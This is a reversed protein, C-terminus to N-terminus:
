LAGEAKRKLLYEYITTIMLLLLLGYVMDEVPITGMRIGLNEENNYWVVQEAIWSGTLLGNVILFFPLIAFYALYFRGLYDGKIVWIHLLLFAATLLFTVATYWNGLNVAALLLLLLALGLSIFSAYPGLIDKQISKKFSHYTFVCAYPICLFFLWEEIPLNILDFGVLYRPTFGWIGMQTFWVDWSIFFLGVILCAPFFAHWTKDFRSRPHFSYFFPILIVGLDILLYTYSDNM